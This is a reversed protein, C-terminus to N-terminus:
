SANVNLDLNLSLLRNQMANQVNLDELTM